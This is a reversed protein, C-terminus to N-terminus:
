NIRRFQRQNKDFNAQGEFKSIDASPFQQQFENWAKQVAADGIKAGRAVEDM